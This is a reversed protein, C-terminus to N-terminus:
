AAGVMVEIAHFDAKDRVALFGGIADIWSLNTPNVCSTAWFTLPLMQNM